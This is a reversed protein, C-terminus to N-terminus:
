PGCTGADQDFMNLITMVPYECILEKKMIIFHHTKEIRYETHIM